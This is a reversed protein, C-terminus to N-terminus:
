FNVGRVTAAGYITDLTLTDVSFARNDRNLNSSYSTIAKVGTTGLVRRRIAPDRTNATRVGLVETKWTMGETQDLFWEGQWLGLRTQVSQAVAEPQDIWFDQKGRGFSYDGQADLKRYLM